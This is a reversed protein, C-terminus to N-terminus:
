MLLDSCEIPLSHTPSEEPLADQLVDELLEATVNLFTLLSRLAAHASHEGVSRKAVDQALALAVYARSLKRVHVKELSLEPMAHARM